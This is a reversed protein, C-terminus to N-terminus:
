ETAYIVGGMTDGNFAAAMRSQGFFGGAMVGSQGAFSVNGSLEAGTSTASVDLAGGVNRLTRDAFTYELEILGSSQGSLTTVGYNGLFTVNKGPADADFTGSLGAFGVGDSVGGVALESLGLAAHGSTSGDSIPTVVTNTLSTAPLAVARAAQNVTIVGSSAQTARGVDQSSTPAAPPETTTEFPNSGSGCASLAVCILLPIFPPRNM